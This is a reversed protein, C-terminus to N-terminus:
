PSAEQPPCPTMDRPIPIRRRAPRPRATPAVMARRHADGLRHRRRITPPAGRFWNSGGTTGRRARRRGARARADRSMADSARVPRPATPRHDGDTTEGAEAGTLSPRGDASPRWWPQSALLERIAVPTATEEGRPPLQGARADHARRARLVRADGDRDEERERDRRLRGPPSGRSEEVTQETAITAPVSRWSRRPWGPTRQAPRFRHVDAPVDASSTRRRREAAFRPHSRHLEGTLRISTSPSTSSGAARQRPALPVLRLAEAESRGASSRSGTRRSGPRCRRADALGDPDHRDAPEGERLALRVDRVRGLDDPPARPARRDVTAVQPLQRRRDPRKKM